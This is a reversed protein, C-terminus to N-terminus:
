AVLCELSSRDSTNTRERVAEALAKVTAGGAVISTDLPIAFRKSMEAVVNILALSTGGMDFFDDNAGVDSVGLAKAWIEAVTREASPDAQNLAAMREKVADALASVTAGGAVISTDLPIAFRKSMEAVVNILALSTGGLDFFDDNAGVDSVGLAKAWIDAVTRELDSRWPAGNGRKEPSPLARRDVKGNVTLPLADLVILLSPVMYEPLRRALEERVSKVDPEVGVASVVYGVLRKDGGPDPQAVVTAQRIRSDSLLAAEVEELEIRYGRVKVQSDVRGVFELVGDGSYRVMDGTCYLRSGCDGFANPIFAQATLDARRFYGRALGAGGIHLEGTAGIPALERDSDFVYATTNSIPRGIPVTKEIAFLDPIPFCVSFTTGETPGYGNIVTCVSIEALLRRVHTASVADGGVLLQRIPAVILADADVISNFLGVTLWLVSIGTQHIVSKLKLLDLTSDPPYLVLTAGNLLAGWIEFTAADFTIPALQLFVDNTSIRVYNTNRVLRSINQHVVGVGKPQGSSGSTYMVYALNQATAGIAPAGTPQDAIRSEQEVRITHVGHPAFADNTESSTLVVSAGADKLLYGIREEPYNKDLPLYAAGAKLIGLLGIVMELSREVCLGVVAERGIGLTRLYHAVQNARQDLEGYTLCDNGAVLAVAEPRKSAQEAFLEHVCQTKPFDSATDNWEVLLRHRQQEDLQLSSQHNPQSHSTEAADEVGILTSLTTMRTYRRKNHICYATRPQSQPCEPSKHRVYIAGILHLRM